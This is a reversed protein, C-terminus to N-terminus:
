SILIAHIIDMKRNNADIRRCNLWVFLCVIFASFHFKKRFPETKLEHWISSLNMVKSSCNGNILSMLFVKLSKKQFEFELCHNKNKNRMLVLLLWVNQTVYEISYWSSFLTFEHAHTNQITKCLNPQIQQCFEFINLNRMCYILITEISFYRKQVFHDLTLAGWWISGMRSDNWNNGLM